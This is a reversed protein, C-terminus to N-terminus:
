AGRANQSDTIDRTCACSTIRARARTSQTHQGMCLTRGHRPTHQAGPTRHTARKLKPACSKGQKQTRM